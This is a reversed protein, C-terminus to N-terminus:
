FFRDALIYMLLLTVGTIMSFMYDHVVGTQLSRMKEGTSLIMRGTGNVIGDIILLDFYRYVSKSFAITGSIVTNRYFEDIYYKNYIIKKFGTITSDDGPVFRNKWYIIYAASFGTLAALVSIGMVIWETSTEHAPSPIDKVTSSLFHEFINGTHFMDLIHPLGALGAFVSLFALIILPITMVYPSEHVAHGEHEHYRMRGSFTLFVLRFMYFSTILAALLGACWLYFNYNYVKWLIEDKSFFGSFFPTGAIALTGMLFTFFTIPLKTRLGGMSRMDQEHHLAYIVSGSGLFLLAKFFAHTVLHFISASFAGAGAAMFMYGLQSITSYALVKKIDMQMIGITAAFLATAGGVAAVTAMSAPALVYMFNLRVIMYVGATVMTAAHILASVPTPGAM